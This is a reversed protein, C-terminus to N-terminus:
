WAIEVIFRVVKPHKTKLDDLVTSLQEPMKHTLKDPSLNYHVEGIYKGWEDVLIVVVPRFETM